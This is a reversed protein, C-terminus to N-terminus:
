NECMCQAAWHIHLLVWDTRHRRWKHKFRQTIQQTKRGKIKHFAAEWFLLYNGWLLTFTFTNLQLSLTFNQSRNFPLLHAASRPFHIAWGRELMFETSGSGTRSRWHPRRPAMCQLVLLRSCKLLIWGNSKEQVVRREEGEAKSCNKTPEM